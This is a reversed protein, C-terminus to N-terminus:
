TRSAQVHGGKHASLSRAIRIQTGSLHLAVAICTQAMGAETTLRPDAPAYGSPLAGIKMDELKSCQAPSQQLAVTDDHRSM